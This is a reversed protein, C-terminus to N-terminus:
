PRAGQAPPRTADQLPLPAAAPEAGHPTLMARVRGTPASSGQAQGQGMGVPKRDVTYVDSASDYVILDGSAWDVMQPGRFRRLEAQGVLKFVDTLGDYEIAASTAEVLENEGDRLQRMLARQGPDASIDAHQNGQADKRVEVRGAHITIGGRMLVVNGTFVSQQRQEDHRLADAEIHIPLPPNKVAAKGAQAYALSSASLM